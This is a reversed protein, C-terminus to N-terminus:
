VQLIERHRKQDDDAVLVFGAEVAADKELAGSRRRAQQDNRAGTMGDGGLLRIHEIGRQRLKEGRGLVAAPERMLLGSPRRRRRYSPVSSIRSLATGGNPM